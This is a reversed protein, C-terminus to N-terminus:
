FAGKYGISDKKSLVIKEIEVKNITFPKKYRYFTNKNNYENDFNFAKNEM